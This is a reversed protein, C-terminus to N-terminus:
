KNREWAKRMTENQDLYAKRLNEPTKNMPCSFNVCKKCFGGTLMQGMITLLVIMVLSMSIFVIIQLIPLPNLVLYWVMYGLTIMPFLDVFGGFITQLIKDVKTLPSPDYKWWKPTGYLAPCNLFKGEQAYFPCHRCLYRTEVLGFNLIFGVGYAVLFWWSGTIKGVFILMSFIVIRLPLHFGVFKRTVKPDNRCILQQDLDCNENHVKQCNLCTNNIEM